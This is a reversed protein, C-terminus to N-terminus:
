GEADDREVPTPPRDQEAMARLYAGVSAVAAAAAYASGTAEQAAVIALGIARRQRHYLEAAPGIAAGAGLLPEHGSM